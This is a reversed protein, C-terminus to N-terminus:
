SPSSIETSNLIYRWNLLPCLVILCHSFIIYKRPTFAGGPMNRSEFWYRDGKKIRYFQDTIICTLTPGLLGGTLPRESLGGIFLDIDDVHRYINQLSQLTEAEIEGALDSFSSAKPLECLERWTNYGPIGHDRGRQVNLAVLDLGFKGDGKFLYNTIQDTFYADINGAAQTVSGRTLDSIGNKKYLEFPSFFIRTMKDHSVLGTSTTRHFGDAIESHGFRYAATAFGNAIGANIDEDYDSTYQAKKKPLLGLQAPIWPGLITPLYENYTVQQLEAVVIRKTEQFLKEDDWGPNISKLARAIRNHERAWVTHFLSLMRQENVRGDGAVFCFKNQSIQEQVNCGDNPDTSPPLLEEGDQTLQTSLLGDTNTRLITDPKTDYIMTGDMYATLQNTQERPGLTCRAAPASRVFEMCTQGHLCYFEDYFPIEIPACESSRLRNPPPRNHHRLETEELSRGFFRRKCIEDVNDCCKISGDGYGSDSVQSVPTSTIDHDIFQGFTMHLITLSSSEKNSKMNISTSVQRGSPLPRGNAARRLSSIGDGYEPLIARRFPIFSAGWLPNQINNCTGDLRRYRDNTQCPDPDPRLLSDDDCFSFMDESFTELASVDNSLNFRQKFHETAKEILLGQKALITSLPDTKQFGKQHRGAPSDNPLKDPNRAILQDQQIKQKLADKGFALAANGESSIEKPGKSSLTSFVSQIHHRHAFVEIKDPSPRHHRTRYNSQRAAGLKEAAAELYDTADPRPWELSLLKLLNMDDQPVPPSPIHRQHQADDGHSSFSSGVVTLVTFHVLKLM